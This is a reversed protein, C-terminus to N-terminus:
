IISSVMERDLELQAKLEELSSFKKDKRIFRIFEIRLIQNYLDGSFDLLNVEIRQESGAITPRSGIYLMGAHKQKGVFVWVAYIGVSPIIKDPHSLQINATPFGINRGIQNGKVVWGDISYNYSLLQQAKEVKGSLLTQRIRTSSVNINDVLLSNAKTVHIDVQKGYLIYANSDEIRDRGFRHDYGILLESLHLKKSLVRKIFEQATLQSLTKSFDLVYCYDIGTTSLLSLKEEFHNLLEPCFEKDLVKRPHIPFTIVASPLHKNRAISNLQDILFRHGLHVGDFFGVTAVIAEKILLTDASIHRIEM